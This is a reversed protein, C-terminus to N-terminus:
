CPRGYWPRPYSLTGDKNRVYPQSGRIDFAEGIDATMQGVVPTGGSPGFTADIKRMLAAFYGEALAQYKESKKFWTDRNPDAERWDGRYLSALALWISLQRYDDATVVDAPYTEPAAPDTRLWMAITRAAEIIQAYASEVLFELGSTNAPHPPFDEGATGGLTRLRITTATLVEAVAFLGGSSGGVKTKGREPLQIVDGAALGQTVFDNSASSLVWPDATTVGDIGYARRKAGRVILAYDSTATIAVNEDSCYAVVAM